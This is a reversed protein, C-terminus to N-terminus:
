GQRCLSEYYEYADQLTYLDPVVEPPIDVEATAEVIIILEFAQLSDLGIDTYLEDYPNPAAPRDIELLQFVHRTFADFDLM